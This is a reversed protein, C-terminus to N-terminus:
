EVILNGVMGNERHKGVSCYYEFTGTKDAVFTITEEKGAALQKTKADFEDIVWDHFGASNKFVITVTDGKKVKMEKVDFDFDTGVVTFTKAGEVEMASEAAPSAETPIMSEEIASSDVPTPETTAVPTTTQACGALVFASAALSLVLKKM